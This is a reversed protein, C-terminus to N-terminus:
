PLYERPIEAVRKEDRILRLRELERQVDKEGAELRREAVRIELPLINEFYSEPDRAGIAKEKELLWRLCKIQKETYSLDNNEDLWEAVGGAEDFPTGEWYPKEHNQGDRGTRFYGYSSYDDPRDQLQFYINWYCADGVSQGLFHNRLPISFRQRPAADTTPRNAM